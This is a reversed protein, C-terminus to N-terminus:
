PLKVGIGQELAAIVWTLIATCWDEHEIYPAERHDGYPTWVCVLDESADVVLHNMFAIRACYGEDSSYEHLKSGCPGALLGDEDLVIDEIDANSHWNGCDSCLRVDCGIAKAYRVDFPEPATM